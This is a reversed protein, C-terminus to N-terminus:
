PSVAATFSSETRDPCLWVSKLGPLSSLAARQDGTYEPKWKKHGNYEIVLQRNLQNLGVVFFGAVFTQCLDISAQSSPCKVARIQTSM